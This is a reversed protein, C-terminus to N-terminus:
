NGAQSMKAQPGVVISFTSNPPVCFASGGISSYVLSAADMVFRTPDSDTNDRQAMDGQMVMFRAPVNKYATNAIKLKISRAKASRNVGMVSIAGENNKMAVLRADYGGPYARGPVLEPTVEIADTLFGERLTRLSWYVASPYLTSNSKNMHFLQWPGNVSIQHWMAGDVMPEKMLMLLFDASALAGGSGSAQYWNKQWDGFVPKAPWRGHETILVKVKTNYAQFKKAQTQIYDQMTPISRGDYYPHFTVADIENALEKALLGDFDERAKGAENWPATKGAVAFKIGPYRSKAAKILPLVRRSYENATWSVPAWDVENGLEFYSIPCNTGSVCNPGNKSLWALYDLNNQVMFSPSFESNKTGVVNLLVVAKSQLQRMLDFFEEPGFEPPVMGKNNAYVPKRASVSRVAKDWEFTNGGSYRYVAGRFPKLWEVTEPRVRGNRVHGNQFQFWDISFGFTNKPVDPRLVRAPNVTVDMVTASRPCSTAAVINQAILSTGLILWALVKRTLNIANDARRVEM